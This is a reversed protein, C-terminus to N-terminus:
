EAETERDALFVIFAGALHLALLGYSDPVPPEDLHAAHGGKDSRLAYLDQLLAVLQEAVQMIYGREGSRKGFDKALDDLTAGKYGLSRLISEVALAAEPICRRTDKARFHALATHFHEEAKEFRQDHLRLLAPRIVEAQLLPSGVRGMVGKESMEFGFRHHAFLANLEYPFTGRPPSWTTLLTPNVEVLTELSTLLEDRSCRRFWDVLADWYPNGYWGRGAGAARLTGFLQQLKSYVPRWSRVVGGFGSLTELLAVRLSEPAAEGLPALSGKKELREREHWYLRDM